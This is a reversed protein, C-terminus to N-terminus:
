VGVFSFVCDDISGLYLLSFLRPSLVVKRLNAQGSLAFGEALRTVLQKIKVTNSSFALKKVLQEVELAATKRKEYLKDGINRVVAPPLLEEASAAM